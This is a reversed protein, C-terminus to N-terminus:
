AATTLATWTTSGNTNIYARDNTTSGDSRLYLSGKAASLTPAGSGFFVGFNSTSSLKFGAGATGGAPIATATYASVAGTTSATGALSISASPLIAAGAGGNLTSAFSNGSSLWGILGYAFGGAGTVAPNATTYIASSGLVSVGSSNTVLVPVTATTYRIDTGVYAASNAVQVSGTVTDFTHTFSVSGGVNLSVHDPNDLITASVDEWIISGAASSSSTFVTAGSGSNAVTIAGNDFSFKASANTATYSVAHSAGNQSDIHCDDLSLNTVNSGSMTLVVGSAAQLDLSHLYVTGSYGATMNGSIFANRAQQGQLSVGAKLTVNEAYNGPAISITTGASAATIAAGITLFPNAIDGANADNGNKAVYLLSTQPITSRFALTGLSLASLIYTLLQSFTWQVNAGSQLGVTTDSGSITTGAPFASWKVNVM